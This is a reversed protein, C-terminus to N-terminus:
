NRPLEYNDMIRIVLEPFETVALTQLNSPLLGM